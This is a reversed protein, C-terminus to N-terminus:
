LFIVLAPPSVRLNTCISPYAPVPISITKPQLPTKIINYSGTSIFFCSMRELSCKTAARRAVWGSLGRRLIGGADVGAVSAAAMLDDTGGLCNRATQMGQTGPQSLAFDPSDTLLAPQVSATDSQEDNGCGFNVIM